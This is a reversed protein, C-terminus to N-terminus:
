AFVIGSQKPETVFFRCGAFRPALQEKAACAAQRNSFIGFVATGSGSMAGGLAGAERMAINLMGVAPVPCCQEFANGCASAIEALNGAALAAELAACDPRAPHPLADFRAYAEPTSVGEPPKAILLACAPLVSLPTLIEGIGETRQTGGTLCFPM